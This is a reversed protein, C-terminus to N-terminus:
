HSGNIMNQLVCDEMAREHGHLAMTTGGGGTVKQDECNELLDSLSSCHQNSSSDRQVVSNSCAFCDFRVRAPCFLITSAPLLEGVDDYGSSSCRGSQVESYHEKEILSFRVFHGIRCDAQTDRRSPKGQLLHNFLRNPLYIHLM